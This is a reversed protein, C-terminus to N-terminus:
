YRKGNWDYAFYNENGKFLFQSGIDARKLRLLNDQGSVTILPAFLIPNADSGISLTASDTHMINGNKLFSLDLTFGLETKIM